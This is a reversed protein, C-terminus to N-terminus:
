IGRPAASVGSQRQTRKILLLTHLDLGACEWYVCLCVCLVHIWVKELQRSFPASAPQLAVLCVASYCLCATMELAVKGEALKWGCASFVAAGDPNSSCSTPVAPHVSECTCYLHICLHKFTLRHPNQLHTLMHSCLIRKYSHVYMHMRLECVCVFVCTSLTCVNCETILIWCHVLVWTLLFFFRWWWTTMMLWHVSYKFIEPVVELHAIKLLSVYNLMLM